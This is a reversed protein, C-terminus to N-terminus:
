EPVTSGEDPGVRRMEIKLIRSGGLHARSFEVGIRAPDGVAVTVQGEARLRVDPQYVVVRYTGAPVGEILFRGHEDTVDFYPHDFAFVWASMWPHIDCSLRVPNDNPEPQFQREYDIGPGTLINFRNRPLDAEARVNHNEPDSNRFGVLQGSRVAVLHPVFAQDAQDIVAVGRPSDDSIEDKQFAKEVEPGSLYVVAYQLGKDSGEVKLVPRRRGANDPVEGRPVTGLFRVRGEISGSGSPAHQPVNEAASSLVGALLLWACLSLGRGCTGPVVTRRPM